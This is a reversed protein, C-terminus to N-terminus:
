FFFNFYKIPIIGNQTYKHDNIDMATVKADILKLALSLDFKNTFLLSFCHNSLLMICTQILIRTPNTM